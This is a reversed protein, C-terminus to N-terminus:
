DLIDRKYFFFRAARCLFQQIFVNRKLPITITYEASYSAYAHM